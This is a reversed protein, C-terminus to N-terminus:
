FDLMLELPCDKAHPRVGLRVNSESVALSGTLGLSEYVGETFGPGPITPVGSPLVLYLGLRMEFEDGGRTWSSRRYSRVQLVGETSVMEATLRYRLPERPERHTVLWLAYRLYASLMM